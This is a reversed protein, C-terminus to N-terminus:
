KIPNYAHIVVVWAWERIYPIKFILKDILYLLRYFPNFISLKRFPVAFFTLLSFYKVEIDNFYKKLLRLDQRILPHEDVTRIKPTLIRFLNFIPNHGLPELFIAHGDKNLIRSTEQYINKIDLHHVIGMGAVVDFSNDDFQTNEVDMVFCDANLKKETIRESAKKIGEESIDIGTVYAGGSKEFIEINIGDACGYELLKKNKSHVHVLEYFTEKAIKIVSYFKGVGDRDRDDKAYRQNHFLKETELRNYNM